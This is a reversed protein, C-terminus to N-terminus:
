SRVGWLNMAEEAIEDPSKQKLFNASVGM